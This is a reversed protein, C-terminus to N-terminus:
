EYKFRLYIFITGTDLLTGPPNLGVINLLRASIKYQGDIRTNISTEFKLDYYNLMSNDNASHTYVKQGDPLLGGFDIEYLGQAGSKHIGANLLHIEKVTGPISIFMNPEISNAVSLSFSRICDKSM